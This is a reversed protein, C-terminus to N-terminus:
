RKFKVKVPIAPPLKRRSLMYFDALVPAIAHVAQEELIAETSNEKIFHFFLHLLEHIVYNHLETINACDSCISIKATRNENEFNVQAGSDSLSRPDVIETELRWDNLRLQDQWFAVIKSVQASGLGLVKPESM